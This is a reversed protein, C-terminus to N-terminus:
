RKAPEIHVLVDAVWDVKSRVHSRVQGAIEHSAAVTLAPDVEVHIDVHYSFGTKRAFTKDVSIVGPVDQAVGRIEAIQVDDPMTDMLELSADRFVRGGILIVIVGVAFGGYHDAARFRDVDYMTLAVAALAVSAALIDVTDNWGDAVLSASHLRRGARFKVVSMAGRVAIAVVLVVIALASPPPHVEGIARLSNWCIGAGGATLIIGVIFAALTEIRGHGYPHRADAPASAMVMGTFVVLSALVDGAFEVGTAVVATSHASLGVVINVTALVASACIGALAVRRGAQVDTM